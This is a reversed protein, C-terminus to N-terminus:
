THNRHKIISRGGLAVRVAVSKGVRREESRAPIARVPRRHRQPRAAYRRSSRLMPVCDFRQSMRRYAAAHRPDAALWGDLDRRLRASPRREIRAIWAAAAERIREADPDPAEFDTM